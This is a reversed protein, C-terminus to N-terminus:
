IRATFATPPVTVTSIRMLRSPVKSGACTAHMVMVSRHVIFVGFGSPRPTKAYLIATNAHPDFEGRRGSAFCFLSPAGRGPKNKGGSGGVFRLFVDAFNKFHFVLFLAISLLVSLFRSIESHLNFFRSNSGQCSFKPTNHYRSNPFARGNQGNEPEKRRPERRLM